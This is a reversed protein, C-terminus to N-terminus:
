WETWFRKEECRGLLMFIQICLVIIKGTIRYPNSVQDLVGVCCCLSLTNYFLIMLINPSFLSSTVPSQFISCIIFHLLILHSPCAALRSFLVAYLISTPFGHISHFPSSQDPDPYPGTSPEQSYPLLDEPEM